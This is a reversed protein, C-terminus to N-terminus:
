SEDPKKFSLTVYTGCFCGASFAIVSYFNSAELCLLAATLSVLGQLANALGAAVPKGATTHRIVLTGLMDLFFGLIFVLVAVPPEM